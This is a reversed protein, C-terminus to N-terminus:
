NVRKRFTRIGHQDMITITAYEPKSNDIREDPLSLEKFLPETEPYVFHLLSSQRKDKTLFCKKM